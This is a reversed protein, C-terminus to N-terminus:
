SDITARRLNFRRHTYNPEYHFLKNGILNKIDVVSVYSSPIKYSTIYRFLFNALITRVYITILDLNTYLTERSTSAPETTRLIHASVGDISINKIAHTDFARNYKHQIHSCHKNYIEQNQNEDEMAPLIFVNNNIERFHKNM